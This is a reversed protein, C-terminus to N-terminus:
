RRSWQLLRWFRFLPGQGGGHGRFGGCEGRGTAVVLMEDFLSRPGFFSFGGRGCLTSRVSHTAPPFVVLLAFSVGSDCDPLQLCSLLSSRLSIRHCIQHEEVFRPLCAVDMPRALEENDMWRGETVRLARGPRCSILM